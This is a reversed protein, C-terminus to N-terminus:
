VAGFRSRRRLFGQFSQVPTKFGRSVSQGSNASLSVHMAQDSASTRAGMNVKHMVRLSASSTMEALSPLSSQLTLAASM